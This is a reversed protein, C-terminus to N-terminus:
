PMQLSHIASFCIMMQLSSLLLSTSPDKMGSSNRDSGHRSSITHPMDQCKQSLVPDSHAERITM